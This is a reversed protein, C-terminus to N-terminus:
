GKLLTRSSKLKGELIDQSGVVLVSLGSGGTNLYVRCFDTSQSLGQPMRNESLARRAEGDPRIAIVHTPNISIERLGYTNNGTNEVAETLRILM